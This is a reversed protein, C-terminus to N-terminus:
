LGGLLMIGVISSKTRKNMQLEWIRPVPVFLLVIDNFMNVIGLLLFFLSVNICSGEAGLYQNWYFSVPRCACAMTIWLIFPYSSTLCVAM